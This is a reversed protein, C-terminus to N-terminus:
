TNPSSSRTIYDQLKLTGMQSTPIDLDAEQSKTTIFHSLERLSCPARSASVCCRKPNKSDLLGESTVPSFAPESSPSIIQIGCSSFSFFDLLKTELGRVPTTEMKEVIERIHDVSMPLKSPNPACSAM